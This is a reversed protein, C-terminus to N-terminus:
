DKRLVKLISNTGVVVGGVAMGANLLFASYEAFRRKRSRRGGRSRQAGLVTHPVEEALPLGLGIGIAMAFLGTLLSRRKQQSM